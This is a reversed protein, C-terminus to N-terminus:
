DMKLAALMRRGRWLINDNVMRLYTDLEERNEPLPKKDKFIRGYDRVKMEHSVPEVRKTSSEILYDDMFFALLYNEFAEKEGKSLFFDELVKLSLYWNDKLESRCGRSQFYRWDEGPQFIIRHPILTFNGITHTLTAFQQLLQNNKAAEESGLIAVARKYVQYFSHMTDAGVELEDWIQFQSWRASPKKRSYLPHDETVMEKDMAGPYSWGWLKKYIRNMIANSGNSSDCDFWFSRLPEDYWNKGCTVQYSKWLEGLHRYKLFKEIPDKEIYINEGQNFIELLIEREEGTKTTLIFVLDGNPLMAENKMDYSIAESIPLELFKELNSGFYLTQDYDYM